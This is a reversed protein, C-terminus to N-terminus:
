YYGFSQFFLKRLVKPIKALFRARGAGALASILTVKPETYFGVGVGNGYGFCIV